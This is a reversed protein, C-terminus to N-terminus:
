HLGPRRGGHRGAAARVRQPKKNQGLIGGPSKRPDGCGKALTALYKRAAGYAREWRMLLGDSIEAGITAAKDVEEFVPAM